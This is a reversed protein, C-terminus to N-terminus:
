AGHRRLVARVPSGDFGMLRLPAASLDYVGPEVGALALGEVIAIDHRACAGHAPLDKSSMPDVSPTDVGITLVGRAALADVLEVSLGSFDENWAEPRAAEGGRGAGPAGAGSTGDFTGTRILVRPHVIWGLGGSSNGGPEGGPGVLDEPRVREGRKARAEVVVCPGVYHELRQEGVSRGGRAYHNPGDAHSGLHVTARLTSLTVSDGRELECLVERTLPTDGPWVRTAASLPPSIDIVEGAVGGWGASSSTVEAGAGRGFWGEGARKVAALWAESGAAPGAGSGPVRAIVWDYLGELGRGRARAEAYAVTSFSVLHYQPECREGFLGHLAQEVKKRYLFAASGVKDRMEVFNELAMDAIADANPKRARQFAELAAGVDGLRGAEGAAGHARLCDVLAVCDEFACNMGQGYFPVIAHAADGLLAVHGPGGAGGAGGAGGVRAVWPWCRVTVLSSSPNSLYDRELTPMLPVADGYHREFFARVEAGTKLNALGHEGEGGEMPWFLTCTFSGDRNPLAIMMAGGRPWIHLGGPDLAFGKGGGVPAPWSGGEVAPITLEKYGHGLYSQSYDFRDTRQLAGRVPSFAGDAALILDAEVRRTEAGPRPLGGGEVRAFVAAPKPGRLDVDMCCQDFHLAVGPMAGAAELLSVNLGGRSVSNIADRPDKSYAQFALRGDVGHMMRGRMPLADRSMVREALGARELAAIGRASLALNISRGGAYGKARPDPRREYVSVGFGERALLVALLSGALGAGVIVVRQSEGM